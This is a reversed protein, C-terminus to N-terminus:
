RVSMTKCKRCLMKKRFISFYMAVSILIAAIMWAAVRGWLPQDVFLSSLILLLLGIINGIIPLDMRGIYFRIKRGLLITAVLYGAMTGLAAGEIGIYKILIIGVVLNVLIGPILLLNVERQGNMGNLVGYFFFVLPNFLVAIGLITLSSSSDGFDVSFLLTITEKAFLLFFISGIWFLITWSTITASIIRQIEITEKRQWCEGVIPLSLNAVLTIPAVIMSVAVAISYVGAANAGRIGSILLMDLSAYGTLLINGLLFWKGTSLLNKWSSERSVVSYEKNDIFEPLLVLFIFACPVVVFGGVIFFRVVTLLSKGRCFFLFLMAPFYFSFQVLNMRTFAQLGSLAAVSIQMIQLSLCYFVITRFLEIGEQYHFYGACIQGANNWLIWTLFLCSIIKFSFIKIFIRRCANSNNEAKYQSLRLTLTNNLGFDLVAILLTFLTISGYLLGFDSTPLHLAFERRTFYNCIGVAVAILATVVAGRCFSKLGRAM